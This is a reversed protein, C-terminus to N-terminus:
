AAVTSPTTTTDMLAFTAERPNSTILRSGCGTPGPSMGTDRVGSTVPSGGFGHALCGRTIGHPRKLIRAPRWAKQRSASTNSKRQLLMPGIAPCGSSIRAQKRGTALCGSGAPHFIGGSAASGSIAGAKVIGHGTAQYGRSIRARRVSIRLCNRLSLRRLGRCWCGQLPSSPSLRRLLRM